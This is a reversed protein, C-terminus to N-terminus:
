KVKSTINEDSEKVKSFLIFQVVNHLGRDHALMRYSIEDGHFASNIVHPPLVGSVAKRDFLRRVMADPGLIDASM